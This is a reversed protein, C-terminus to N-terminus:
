RLVRRRNGLTGLVFITFAVLCCLALILFLNSPGAFDYLWGSFTTSILSALNFVALLLGQSTSKVEDPALDNIYAISGIWFLGFSLSNLLSIYPAWSASPMIGYLVMRMLYALMAAAIMKRPAFRKLLRSGYFLIPIESAGSIAMTLGILGEDAGLDKMYVGLFNYMGSAAVWLFLVSFTFVVWHPQRLMFRLAGILRTSSDPIRSGTPYWFITILFIVMFLTFIPFLRNLGLLNLLEGGILSTLVYGVSGWLRISGYRERQNGLLLLTNSDIIPILTSYFLSFLAAVPLLLSFSKVSAIGWSTIISGLIATGLLIRTKGFRDNLLGWISGGLMGVLPSLSNILGIELGSLGIDRYYVNIFPMFIAFGAYNIFYIAKAAPLHKENPLSNHNM